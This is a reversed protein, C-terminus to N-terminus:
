FQYIYVIFFAWIESYKWKLLITFLDPVQKWYGNNVWFCVLIQGFEMKIVEM